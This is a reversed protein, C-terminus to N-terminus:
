CRFTASRGPVFPAQRIRTSAISSAAFRRDVEASGLDALMALFPRWHERVRGDADMMEDFNNARPKYGSLITEPDGIARSASDLHAM